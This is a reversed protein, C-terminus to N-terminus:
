GHTFHGKAVRLLNAQTKTAETLVFCTAGLRGNTFSAQEELLLNLPMLILIIGYEQRQQKQQRCYVDKRVVLPALQFLLSKGFSTKAILVVDQCRSGRWVFRELAEWQQERLAPVGFGANACRDTYERDSESIDRQLKSTQFPPQQPSSSTTSKIIDLLHGFPVPTPNSDDFSSSQPISSAILLEQSNNNADLLNNLSTSQSSVQIPPDQFIVSKEIEEQSQSTQAVVTTAQSLPNFLSNSREHSQDIVSYQQQASPSLISM